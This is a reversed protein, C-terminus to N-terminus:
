TCLYFVQSSYKCSQQYEQWTKIKRYDRSHLIDCNRTGIQSPGTTNLASVTVATSTRNSNSNFMPSKMHAECVLSNRRCGTHSGQMCHVANKMILIRRNALHMAKYERYLLMRLFSAVRQSFADDSTDTLMSTLRLSKIRKQLTRFRHVMGLHHKIPRGTHAAHERLAKEVQRNADM